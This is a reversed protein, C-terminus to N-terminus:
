SNGIAKSLFELISSAKRWASAWNGSGAYMSVSGPAVDPRSAPTRSTESVATPMDPLSRASDGADWGDGDGDSISSCGAKPSVTAAAEGAGIGSKAVEGAPSGGTGDSM